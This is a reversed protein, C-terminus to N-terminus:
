ALTCWDVGSALLSSEDGGGIGDGFGHGSVGAGGFRSHRDKSRSGVSSSRGTASFKTGARGSVVRKARRGEPVHSNRSASWWHASQSAQWLLRNDNAWVERRMAAM